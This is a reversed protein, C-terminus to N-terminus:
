SVKQKFSPPFLKIWSFILLNEHFSVRRFDSVRFHWSVPKTQAQCQFIIKKIQIDGLWTWLSDGISQTLILLKGAISVLLTLEKSHLLNLSHSIRSRGAIM